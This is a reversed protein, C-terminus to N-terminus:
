GWFEAALVLLILILVLPLLFFRKWRLLRRYAKYSYSDSRVRFVELADIALVSARIGLVFDFRRSMIPEGLRGFDDSNVHRLSLRLLLAGLGLYQRQGRIRSKPVSQGM